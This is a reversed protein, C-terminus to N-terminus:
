RTKEKGGFIAKGRATASGNKLAHAEDITLNSWEVTDIDARHKAVVDFNIVVAGGEAKVAAWADSKKGGDIVHVPLKCVLWKEIEAKWTLRMSAPCIILWRYREKAPLRDLDVNVIGIAQITKGLGPQDAILVNNRAAGYAIGAKQFPKYELGEPCPLTVDAGTARSMALSQARAATMMGLKSRAADDAYKALKGAKAIDATYWHPTPEMTFRFGAVKPLDKADRPCYFEFFDGNSTLRMPPPAAPVTAIAGNLKTKAAEDAFEALLVAKGSSRRGGVPAPAMGVFAPM